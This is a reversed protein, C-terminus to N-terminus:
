PLDNLISEYLEITEDIETTETLLHNSTVTAKTLYIVLFLMSALCSYRIILNNNALLAAAYLFLLMLPILPVIKIENKLYTSYLNTQKKLARIQKLIDTIESQKEDIQSIINDLLNNLRNWKLLYGITEKFLYQKLM